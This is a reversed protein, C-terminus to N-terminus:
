GFVSYYRLMGCDLMRLDRKLLKDVITPFEWDILLGGVIASLGGSFGNLNLYPLVLIGCLSPDLIYWVLESPTFVVVTIVFWLIFYFMLVNFRFPSSLYAM